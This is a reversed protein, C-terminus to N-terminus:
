TKSSKQRACAANPSITPSRSMPQWRSPRLEANESQLRPNEAQLRAKEGHLHAVKGELEVLRKRLVSIELSQEAV